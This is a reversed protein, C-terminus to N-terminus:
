DFLLADASCKNKNIENRGFEQRPSTHLVKEGSRLGEHSTTQSKMLKGVCKQVAVFNITSIPVCQVGFNIIFRRYLKELM